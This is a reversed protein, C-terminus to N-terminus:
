NIKELTIKNKLHSIPINVQKSVSLMGLEKGNMENRQYDNSYNLYSIHLFYNFVNNTQNSTLNLHTLFFPM